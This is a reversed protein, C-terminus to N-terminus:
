HEDSSEPGLVQSAHRLGVWADLGHPKGHGDDQSPRLDGCRSKREFEAGVQVLRRSTKRNGTKDLGAVEFFQEDSTDGAIPSLVPDISTNAVREQDFRKLVSEVRMHDSWLNTDASM